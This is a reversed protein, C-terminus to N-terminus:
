GAATGGGVDEPGEVDFGAEAYVSVRIRKWVGRPLIMFLKGTSVVSKSTAEVM